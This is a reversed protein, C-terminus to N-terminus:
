VHAATLHKFKKSRSRPAGLVDGFAPLSLISGLPIQGALLQVPHKESLSLVETPWIDALIKPNMYLQLHFQSLSRFFIDSDSILLSRRGRSANM